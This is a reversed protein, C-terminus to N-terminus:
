HASVVSDVEASQRRESRPHSPPPFSSASRKGEERADEEEDKERRGGGKAHAGTSFLPASLFVHFPIRWNTFKMDREWTPLASRLAEVIRRKNFERWPFNSIQLPFPNNSRNQREGEERSKDLWQADTAAPCALGRKKREWTEGGPSSANRTCM